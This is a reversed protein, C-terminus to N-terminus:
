DVYGILKLKEINVLTEINRGKADKEPTMLDEMVQKVYVRNIAVFEPRQGKNYAIGYKTAGAKDTWTVIKGPNGRAM